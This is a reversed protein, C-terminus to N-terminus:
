SGCIRRVKIERGFLVHEKLKYNISEAFFTNQNVVACVSWLLVCYEISCKDDMSKLFKIHTTIFLNFPLSLSRSQSRWKSEENFLAGIPERVDALSENDSKVSDIIKCKM